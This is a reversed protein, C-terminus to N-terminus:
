HERGDYRISGGVMDLAEEWWIYHERRGYRISGGMM